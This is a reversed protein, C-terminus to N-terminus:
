DASDAWKIIDQYTAFGKSTDSLRLTDGQETIVDLVPALQQEDNVIRQLALEYASPQMDRKRLRAIQVDRPVTLYFACWDFKMERRLDHLWEYQGVSRPQGDVFFYRVQHFDADILAELLLARVEEETEPLCALGRFKEPPYRKRMIQGVQVGSVYPDDSAMAEQVITTKGSGTSGMISIVKM